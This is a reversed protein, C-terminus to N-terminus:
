ASVKTAFDCQSCCYCGVVSHHKFGNDGTIFLQNCCVWAHAKLSTNERRLGFYLRYPLGFMGLLVRAVIAQAFCNAHWPCYRATNVVLRSIQRARKLQLESLKTIVLPQTDLGAVSVGLYPAVRAFPFILVIARAIGLSTWAFIFGIKFFLEHKKFARLKQYLFKM